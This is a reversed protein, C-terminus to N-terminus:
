EARVLRELDIGDVYEMVLFHVGDAEAADYALVINPHSLQAAARVERRFSAVAEPAIEQDDSWLTDTPPPAVAIVKLAVRRKMLLHEAQYVQGMGGAGLKELIRYQGLVLGGARGTLLREAPYGAFVHPEASRGAQLVSWSEEPTKVPM